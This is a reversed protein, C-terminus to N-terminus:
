WINKWQKGLDVKEEDKEKEVGGREAVHPLLDGGPAGRQAGGECLGHLTRPTMPPAADHHMEVPFGYPFRHSFRLFLTFDMPLDM